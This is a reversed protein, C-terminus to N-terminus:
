SSVFVQLPFLRTGKKKSTLVPKVVDMNLKAGEYQCSSLMMALLHKLSAHIKDCHNDASGANHCQAVSLWRYRPDFYFPDCGPAGHCSFVPQM